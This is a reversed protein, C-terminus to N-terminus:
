IHQSAASKISGMLSEGMSILELFEDLASVLQRRAKNWEATLRPIAAVTDRMQKIQSYLTRYTKILEDVVMFFQDIDEKKEKVQEPFLTLRRAAAISMRQQETKFPFLLAGLKVAYETSHRAVEQVIRKQEHVTAQPTLRAVCSGVAGALDNTASNIDAGIEVLKDTAALFAEELDLMGVDQDTLDVENSTQSEAVDSIAVLHEVPHEAQKARAGLFKSLHIRCMNEFEATSSFERYLAGLDPLKKKFDHVMSLQDADIQAPSIPENKFYIMIEVSGPNSKKREYAREFEEVSGSMGRPTPTGLRSWFIGIFIDFSEGIQANIAAQPDTSVSPTTHTEWKLLDIQVGFGKWILNLEEVVRNLVQREASVDSPSAVFASFVRVTAVM